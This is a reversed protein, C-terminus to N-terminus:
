PEGEGKKKDVDGDKETEQYPKQELSVMELEDRTDVYLVNLLGIVVNRLEMSAKKWGLVDRCKGIVVERLAAHTRLHMLGEHTLHTFLEQFAQDEMEEHGEQRLMTLYSLHARVLSTQNATYAMYEEYAFPTRLLLIPHDAPHSEMCAECLDYNVCVVCNYRKGVLPMVQCVDCGVGEHLVTSVGDVTTVPAEATATASM